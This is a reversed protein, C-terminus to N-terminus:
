AKEGCDEAALVDGGEARATMAVEGGRTESPDAEGRGTEYRRAFNIEITTFRHLIDGQACTLLRSSRRDEVGCKVIMAELVAGTGRELSREKRTEGREEEAAVAARESALYSELDSERDSTFDGLDSCLHNNGRGRLMSRERQRDIEAWLRM